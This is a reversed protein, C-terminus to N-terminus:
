IICTYTHMCWRKIIYMIWGILEDDVVSFHTYRDRPIRNQNPTRNTKKNQTSPQHHSM